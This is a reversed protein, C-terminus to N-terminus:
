ERVATTLELSLEPSMFGTPAWVPSKLAFPLPLRLLPLELLLEGDMPQQVSSSIRPSEAAM